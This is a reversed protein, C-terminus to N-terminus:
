RAQSLGSLMDCFVTVHHVQPQPSKIFRVKKIEGSSANKSIGLIEYLNVDDM